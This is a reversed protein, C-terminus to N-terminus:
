KNIYEHIGKYFLAGVTAGPDVKGISKELYRGARGHKAQLNVTDNMGKVAAHYAKEIAMNMNENNDISQELSNTASLLSDLITKDGINANGREMIGLEIEKLVHYFDQLNLESKGKTAKGAKILGSAFLTGMTSPASEVFKMGCRFLLSGVETFEEETTLERISHFGRSMTLGIDGDGIAGDLECLYDKNEDIIMSIKSFIGIIDQITLKDNM